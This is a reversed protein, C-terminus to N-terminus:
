SLLIMFKAYIWLRVAENYNLINIPLAPDVGMRLLTWKRVVEGSVLPRTLLNQEVSSIGSLHSLFKVFM